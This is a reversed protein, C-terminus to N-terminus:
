VQLSNFSRLESVRLGLLSHVATELQNARMLSMYMYLTHIADIHQLESVKQCHNDESGTTAMM